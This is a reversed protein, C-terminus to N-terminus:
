YYLAGRLRLAGDGSTGYPGQIVQLTDTSKRMAGGNQSLLDIRWSKALGM